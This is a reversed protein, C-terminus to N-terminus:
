RFMLKGFSTTDMEKFSIEETPELLFEKLIKSVLIGTLTIMFAHNERPSINSKLLVDGCFVRFQEIDFTNNEVGSLTDMVFDRGYENAFALSDPARYPFKQRELISEPILGKYAEKLIAKEGYLSNNFRVPDLKRVYNVFDKDLFPPRTEVSNAMSVRDGQTCLLHGSLLTEIEIIQGRTLETAHEFGIYKDLLYKEWGLDEPEQKFFNSARAGLNIRESHSSLVSEVEALKRYNSFKLALFKENNAVQPMFSNIKALKFKLENFTAGSRISQKVLIEQFIDYGLFIEDAGEGTLVVKIQNNSVEKCLLYMPIFASRHSPAETFFLAEEINDVVDRNSIKLSHHDTHLFESITKQHISEDFAENEFSVSFSKINQSTHEAVEYGVLSSDLGGSLFLGVPVDSVLRNKVAQSFQTRLNKPEAALVGQELKYSFYKEISVKGSHYRLLYGPPVSKIDKWFSSTPVPAWLAALAHMAQGCLEPQSSTLQFIAKIESSFSFGKKDSYYLPKEGFPDRGLLLDGSRPDYYAFAFQGNIRTLSSEGYKCLLVYLVETDSNTRFTNGDAILYRRLEQYDFIEGNFVLIPSGNGYTFPQKGASLDIISLRSHVLGVRNDWYIGAEDPGRHELASLAKELLFQNPQKGLWFTGAIGCM